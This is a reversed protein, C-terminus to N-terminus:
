RFKLGVTLDLVSPNTIFEDIQKKVDSKLTCRLDTTIFGLIDVGAGVQWSMANEGSIKDTDDLKFMFAPGGTVHLSFLGLNFFRLGLMLPVQINNQAIPVQNGDNTTITFYNSYYIEPQLYLTRGFQMLIGFKNYSKLHDTIEDFNKTTSSAFTGFKPGIWFTPKKEKPTSTTTQEVIITQSADDQAFLAWSCCVFLLCLISKTKM